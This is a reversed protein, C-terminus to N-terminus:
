RQKLKRYVDNWDSVRIINTGNVTQNYPADFLLVMIGNQALFYAVEPKDDIMINVGFKRCGNLKDEPSNSESCYFFDKFEMKYRKTWKLFLRRSYLGLPNKMTIFKRATIEYLENGDDNLLSLVKACNERPPCSRCYKFFYKLGYKFEQRETCEFMERIGYACPDKAERKFYEKGCELNFRSMDTLVGDADIGIKM